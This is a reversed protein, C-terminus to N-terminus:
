NLDGLDTHINKRVQRRALARASTQSREALITLNKSLARTSAAVKPDLKKLLKDTVKAESQIIEPVLQKQWKTGYRAPTLKTSRFVNGERGPDFRGSDKLKSVHYDLWGAYKHAGAKDIDFEKNLVKLARAKIPAPAKSNEAIQLLHHAPHEFFVKGSETNPNDELYKITGNIFDESSIKPSSLQAITLRPNSKLYSVQYGPNLSAHAGEKPEFEESENASSEHLSDELKAAPSDFGTKTGVEKAQAKTVMESVKLGTLKEVANLAQATSSSSTAWSHFEVANAATQLEPSVIPMLEAAKDSTASIHDKIAQRQKASLNRWISKDPSASAKEPHAERALQERMSQESKVAQKFDPDAENVLALPQKRDSDTM